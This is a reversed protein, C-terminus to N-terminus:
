KKTNYGRDGYPQLKELWLEELAQLDDKYNYNPDEKPDLRELVEFSFNEPGSANYDAQLQPVRMIGMKLEFPFRNLASHLNMHSRVFIKGNQVNRIQFVGADLPRNKYNRILEKKHDNM